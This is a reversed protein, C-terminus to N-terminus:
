VVHGCDQKCGHVAEEVAAAVRYDADIGRGLRDLGDECDQGAQALEDIAQLDGRLGAAQCVDSRLEGAQFLTRGDIEEKVRQSPRLRRVSAETDEEREQAFSALAYEFMM